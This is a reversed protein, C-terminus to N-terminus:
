HCHNVILPGILSAILACDSARVLFDVRGLSKKKHVHSPGEKKFPSGLRAGSPSGARKPSVTMIPNEAAASAVASPDKELAEAFRTAAADVAIFIRDCDAKKCHKSARQV